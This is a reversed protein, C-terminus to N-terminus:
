QGRARLRTSTEPNAHGVHIPIPSESDESIGYGMSVLGGIPAGGSILSVERERKNGGYRPPYPTFSWGCPPPRRTRAQRNEASGSKLLSGVDRVFWYAATSFATQPVFGCCDRHLREADNQQPTYGATKEHTIGRELLFKALKNGLFEQGLNTRIAKVRKNGSAKQELVNIALRAYKGTSGKSSMLYILSTKTAHDLVLLFYRQGAPTEPHIPGVVDMYLLDLPHYEYEKTKFKSACQKNEMCPECVETLQHPLGM